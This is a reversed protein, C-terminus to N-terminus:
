RYGAETIAQSCRWGLGRPISLLCGLVASAGSAATCLKQKERDCAKSVAARAAIRKQIAELARPYDVKCQPSVTDQNRALCERIRTPELNVGLCNANLDKACSAGLMTTASEFSVTGASALTPLTLVLILLIFRCLIM